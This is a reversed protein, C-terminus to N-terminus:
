VKKKMVYYGLNEAFNVASKKTKFGIYIINYDKIINYYNFLRSKLVHVIGQM